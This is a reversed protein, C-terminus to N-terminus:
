KPFLVGCRGVHRSARGSGFVDPQSGTWHWEVPEEGRLRTQRKAAPVTVGPVIPQVFVLIPIM